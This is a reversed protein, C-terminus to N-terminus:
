NQGWVVLEWRGFGGTTIKQGPRLLCLQTAFGVFFSTYKSVWSVCWLWLAGLGALGLRRRYVFVGFSAGGGGGGPISAALQYFVGTGRLHLPM